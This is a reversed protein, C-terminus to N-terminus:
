NKRCYNVVIYPDQNDFAGGYGSHANDSLYNFGTACDWYDCAEDVKAGTKNTPTESGSLRYARVGGTQGLTYNTSYNQGRFSQSFAGDGILSRGTAPGYDSWDSPCPGDFAAIMGSPVSSGGSAASSISQAYATLPVALLAAIGAGAIFARTTTKIM